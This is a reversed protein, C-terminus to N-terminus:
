VVGLFTASLALQGLGALVMAGGALRQVSGVYRSLGRLADSGAAAVLTVGVLPLAVAAAYGALVAAAQGGPLAFSQAVVGLFVPAVCGAAALAYTGGFAAFGAVSRRRAPLGVRVEPARDTLYAVGLVVLAAGVVPELYVLRSAVSRGVSVVVGTLAALVLLAGAAAAAGRVVAGGATADDDRLYYGVYGPLLPYACPALFTALGASVGFALTGLFAADAM